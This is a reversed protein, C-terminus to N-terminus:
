NLQRQVASAVASWFQRSQRSAACTSLHTIRQLAAQVNGSALAATAEGQVTLGAYTNDLHHM